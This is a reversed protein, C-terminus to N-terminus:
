TPSGVQLLALFKKMQTLNGAIMSFPPPSLKLLTPTILVGDSLARQPSDTADVIELEWSQGFRQKCIDRLDALALRSAPAGKSLYLRLSLTPVGILPTHLIGARTRQASVSSTGKGAAASQYLSM